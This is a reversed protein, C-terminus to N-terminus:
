APGEGDAPASRMIAATLVPARCSVWSPRVSRPSIRRGTGSSATVAVRM